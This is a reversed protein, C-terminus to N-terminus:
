DMRLVCDLAQKQLGLITWGIARFAKKRITMGMKQKRKEQQQSSTMIKMRDRQNM